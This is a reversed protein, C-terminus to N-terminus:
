HRSQWSSKIFSIEWSCKQQGYFFKWKWPNLAHSGRSRYAICIENSNKNRCLNYYTIQPYAYRSDKTILASILKYIPKFVSGFMQMKVQFYRPPVLSLRYLFKFLYKAKLMLAFLSWIRIWFYLVKNCVTRNQVSQFTSLAPKDLM